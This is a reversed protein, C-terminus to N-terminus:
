VQVPNVKIRFLPHKLQTNVYFVDTENVKSGKPEKELIRVGRGERVEAPSACALSQLVRKLLAADGSSSSSSSSSKSAAAANSKSEDKGNDGNKNNNDKQAVPAARTEGLRCQDLIQQFTLM